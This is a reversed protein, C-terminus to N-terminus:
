YVISWKGTDMDTTNFNVTDPVAEDAVLMGKLTEKAILPTEAGIIGDPIEVEYQAIHIEPVNIKIKM